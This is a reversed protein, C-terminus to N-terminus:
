LHLCRYLHPCRPPTQGPSRRRRRPWTSSAQLSTPCTVSTDRVGRPLDRSPRPTGPVRRCVSMVHARRAACKEPLPGRRRRQRRRRLQPLPLSRRPLRGITVYSPTQAPHRIPPVRRRCADEHLRAALSDRGRRVAQLRRAPARERVCADVPLGRLAGERDRCIFPRRVLSLLLGSGSPLSL